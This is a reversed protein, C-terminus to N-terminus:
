CVTRVYLDRARIIIKIIINYLGNTGVAVTHKEAKLLYENMKKKKLGM